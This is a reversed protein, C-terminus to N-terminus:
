GEFMVGADLRDCLTRYLDAIRDRPPNPGLASLMRRALPGRELLTALERQCFALASPNSGFVTDVFHRWLQVASCPVPGPYGLTTLYDGDTITAADADVIVAELIDALAEVSWAQQARLDSWTEGVLLKLVEVVVAAIALDAAPCEQMDLLRIEITNRSFRAIAGRANVWEHRLVRGPDYPELDRYLRQLIERKYDARTFVPEPVVRGTLSPIRACNTRYVSLRNDLTGNPRGELVPSAAALAPLIPLLLRVAAHLRAFQGDDAFPLNIHVSQLNAWGHARCDFIRDLTRYVRSYAHPWLCTEACPDMWPHMATPMLRAGHTRLHANVRAVHEGFRAALGYLETVPGTTKLEIVHLVMENSWSVDDFEVDTVTRGAEAALVRDTLPQVTLRDADVIMYELEIGVGEFLGLRPTNPM